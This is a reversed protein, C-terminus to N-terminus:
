RGLDDATPAAQLISSSGDDNKNAWFVHSM